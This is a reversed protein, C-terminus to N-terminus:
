KGEVEEAFFIINTSYLNYSRVRCHKQSQPITPLPLKEWKSSPMLLLYNKDM